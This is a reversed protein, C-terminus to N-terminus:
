HRLEVVAFSPLKPITFETAESTSTVDLLKTGPAHYDAIEQRPYEGLVRVRIGEVDSKVGAYNILYLRTLSGNGVLRGIVLYSGYIRLLRKGDTLHARVKEALLSPNGAESKPYDRTGLAVTLNLHSDPRDVIEFLLNRRVLLNMFEGSAPSGDDIFGINVLPALSNDGLSRLFQQMEALAKLGAEDTHVLADAGYMFAEAAALSASVGAAEYYFHGAPQRLLRWANSNIWAERTASAEEMRFAVSPANLKLLSAPDVVHISIGGPVKRWAAACSPPVSIDRIGAQALKSATDPGKDWFLGPVLAALLFLNM